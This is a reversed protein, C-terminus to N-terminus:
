SGEGVELKCTGGAAPKRRAGARDVAARGVIARAAVGSLELISGAPVSAGGRPVIVRSTGYFSCQSSRRSRESTNRADLACPDSSVSRRTSRPSLPDVHNGFM